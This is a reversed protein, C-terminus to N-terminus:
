YDLIIYLLLSYHYFTYLYLNTKSSIVVELTTCDALILSLKTLVGGIKGTKFLSQLENTESLCARCISDTFIIESSEDM